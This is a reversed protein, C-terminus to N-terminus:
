EPVSKNLILESWAGTALCELLEMDDRPLAKVTAHAKNDDMPDHLIRVKYNRAACEDQIAGVGGIAFGSKPKVELTALASRAFRQSSRSM